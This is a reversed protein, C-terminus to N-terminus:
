EWRAEKYKSPIFIDNNLRPTKIKKYTEKMRLVGNGYFLVEPAVWGNGLKEYNNFRIDQTNGNGFNQILRVFLLREKEIWFQNSTDDGAEAGVVYVEKGQWKTSHMKSLDISLAELQSVTTEVPQAYVSFGLILLPHFMKRSNAVAGAQFQYLTDNRFMFGNGADWDDIKITLEGPIRMAEYWIEESVQNGQADYRYTDQEFTLTEYWQGEYRNYMSEILEKGNEPPTWFSLFLLVVASLRM